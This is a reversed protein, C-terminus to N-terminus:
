LDEEFNWIDNEKSRGGSQSGTNNNDVIGTGNQPKITVNGSSLVCFTDTYLVIVSSKPSIYTKRKM